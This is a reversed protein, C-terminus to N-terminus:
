RHYEADEVNTFYLILPMIVGQKGALSTTLQDGEAGAKLVM